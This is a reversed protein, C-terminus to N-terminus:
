LAEVDTLGAVKYLKRLEAQHRAIQMETRLVLMIDDMMELYSDLRLISEIHLQVRQETTM